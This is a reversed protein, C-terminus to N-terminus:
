SCNFKFNQVLPKQPFWLGCRLVGFGPNVRGKKYYIHPPSGLTLGPTQCESIHPRPHLAKSSSLIPSFHNSRLVNERSFQTSYILIHRKLFLMKICPLSTCEIKRKINFIKKILIMAKLFGEKNSSL